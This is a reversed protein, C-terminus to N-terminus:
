CEDNGKEAPSLGYGMKLLTIPNMVATASGKEKLGFDIQTACGPNAAVLIEARTDLINNVKRELIKMSDERRVVNYIGGSGCCMSAENLEVFEIGPISQLIQRPQDTIQQTHALHCADHYAVRKQVPFEPKKFDIDVLFEHIDRVISSFRKAKESYDPDDKLLDVYEKMFASCGASNIVIFDLDHALFADINKRALEKAVKFDGYHAALSGCCVQDEPMIVQCSNEMLVDVTDKNIDAFMVNMLCGKLFGVRYDVHPPSMTRDLMADSFVPSIAPAMKELHRFKEPLIRLLGLKYIFRRVYKQYFRLLRALLKLRFHSPFIFRFFFRKRYHQRDKGAEAIQARSAEVLQGYKVGAPCVTQCAQCDLCFDMEDVFADTMPLNGDAVYKILRIRGRPSSKERGTLQYTPCVALCMGCHICSTLIDEDPVDIKSLDNM